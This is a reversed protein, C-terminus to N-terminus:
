RRGLHEEFLVVVVHVTGEVETAMERDVGDAGVTRNKIAGRAGITKQVITLGIDVTTM